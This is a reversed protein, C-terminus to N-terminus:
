LFGIQYVVPETTYANCSFVYGQGCDGKVTLPNKGAAIPVCFAHVEGDVLKYRKNACKKCDFLYKSM